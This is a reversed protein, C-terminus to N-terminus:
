PPGGDPVLQRRGRRELLAIGVGLTVHGDRGRGFGDLRITGLLPVDAEAWTLFSGAMILMAAAALAAALAVERRAVGM